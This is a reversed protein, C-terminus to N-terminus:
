WPLPELHGERFVFARHPEPSSVRPTADPILVPTVSERTYLVVGDAVDSYKDPVGALYVILPGTTANVSAGISTLIERRVASNALRAQVALRNAVLNAGLVGVFLVSMVLRATRTSPLSVIWGVGVAFGASALYLYRAALPGTIFVFPAIAVVTWAIAFRAVRGGRWFIAAAVFPVAYVGISELLVLTDYLRQSIAILHPATFPSSADPAILSMVYRCANIPVHWGLEAKYIGGTILRQFRFVFAELVLYTAWAVAWGALIWGFSGSAGFGRAFAPPLRSGGDLQTAGFLVVVAVLLPAVVGTEKSLVGLISLVLAGLGWPWRGSRVYRAACCCAGVLFGTALLQPLGGAIWMVAEWHSFTTAFFAAAAIAAVRRGTIQWALDAVLISDAVHLAVDLSNLPRPSLGFMRYSAAVVLNSLPTFSGHYHRLTSPLDLWFYRALRMWGFDDQTFFFDLVPYFAIGCLLAVIVASWVFPTASPHWSEPPPRNM